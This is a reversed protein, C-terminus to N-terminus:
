DEMNDDDDTAPRETEKRLADELSDYQDAEEKESMPQVEPLMLSELQLCFADGDKTYKVLAYGEDPADAMGDVSDAPVNVRFEESDSEPETKM